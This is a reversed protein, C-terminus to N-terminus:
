KHPGFTVQAIYNDDIMTMADGSAIGVQALRHLFSTGPHLSAIKYGFHTVGSAAGSGVQVVFLAQVPDGDIGVFINQVSDQSEGLKTTGWRSPSLVIQWIFLVLM